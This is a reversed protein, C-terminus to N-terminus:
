DWLSRFRKHVRESFQQCIQHTLLYISGPHVAHQYELNPVMHFNLDFQEFLLTNFYIVDCSASFEINTEGTLDVNDFLYKNIIYNGTNMATNNPIHSVGAKRNYISGSYQTYDFNPAAKCPALIATKKNYQSPAVVSDLYNKAITFYNVDAFNDSDILAIWENRAFSCVRLKNFLPGLRYENTFLRLKPHDPFAERIKAVDNGNEDTIIIEDILDIELYKPIYKSLFEDYRDMTPICLSFM